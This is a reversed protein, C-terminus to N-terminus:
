LYTPAPADDPGADASRHTSVDISSRKPSVDVKSMTGDDPPSGAYMEYACVYICIAPRPSKLLVKVKASMSKLAIAADVHSTGSSHGSVGTHAAASSRTKTRSPEPLTLGDFKLRSFSKTACSSGDKWTARTGGSSM